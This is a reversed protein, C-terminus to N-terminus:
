KLRQSTNFFKMALVRQCRLLTSVDSCPRAAIWSALGRRTSYKTWKMASKLHKVTLFSYTTFNKLYKNKFM